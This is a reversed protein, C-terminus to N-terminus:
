NFHKGSVTVGTMPFWQEPLGPYHKKLPTLMKIYLKKPLSQVVVEGDTANALLPLDKDDLTWAKLVCEAGNHVGYEKFEHGHSHTVRFPM